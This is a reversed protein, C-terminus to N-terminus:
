FCVLLQEPRAAEDQVLESFVLEEKPWFVEQRTGVEQQQPAVFDPSVLGGGLPSRHYDVWNSGM